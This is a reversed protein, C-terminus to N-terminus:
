ETKSEEFIRNGLAQDGDNKAPSPGPDRIGVGATAHAMTRAAPLGDARGPHGRYKGGSTLM